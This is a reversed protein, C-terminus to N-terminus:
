AVVAEYPPALVKEKAGFQTILIERLKPLLIDEQCPIGKEFDTALSAGEGITGGTMIRVGEVAKGDLKAPAGMIGIDGVQAQGCSNPCGTWHMRVTRPIDLEEELRAAIAMARNKTEILAIGCFQAGTCSVLGRTLPKANIKYKQFIPEKQMAELNAEPINPFLINEEVTVRATGDGYKDAIDAFAFFDEAFLRGSPVCAGVWYYGAQKQPHVGLVDRREWVDDYTVHVGPPLDELGMYGAVGKRFENPGMAEVLWM